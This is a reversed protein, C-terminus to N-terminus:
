SSRASGEATGGRFTSTFGDSVENMFISDLEPNFHWRPDGTGFPIGYMIRTGMESMGLLEPVRPPYKFYQVIDKDQWHGAKDRQRDRAEKMDAKYKRFEHPWTKAWFVVALRVKERFSQGPVVIAPAQM